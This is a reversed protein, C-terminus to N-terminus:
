FRSFTDMSKVLNKNILTLIDSLRYYIKGGAKSYTTQRAARLNAAHRKSIKLFNIFDTEDLIVENAPRTSRLQLQILEQVLDELKKFAHFDEHSIM